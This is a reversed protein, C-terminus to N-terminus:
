QLSGAGQQEAQAQRYLLELRKQIDKVQADIKQLVETLNKVSAEMEKIRDELYSIAGKNNKQVIIDSGISVFVEDPQVITARINLGGGIPMFVPAEGAEALANLTEISANAERIGEEMIGLQRSYVEAQQTYQNLYNQLSQVERPDVPAM